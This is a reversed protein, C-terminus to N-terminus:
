RAELNLLDVALQLEARLRTIEGLLQPVDDRLLKVIDLFLQHAEEHTQTPPGNFRDRVAAARARILALQEDPLPLPDLRLM